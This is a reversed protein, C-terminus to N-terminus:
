TNVSTCLGLRCIPLMMEQVQTGCQIFSFALQPHAHEQGRSHHSSPNSTRAGKVQLIFQLRHASVFVEEGLNSKDPTEDCGYVQFEFALIICDWLM